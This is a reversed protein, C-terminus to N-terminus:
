VMVAGYERMMIMRTVTTNIAMSCKYILYERRPRADRAHECSRRMALRKPMSVLLIMDKVKMIPAMSAATPPTSIARAMPFSLGKMPKKAPILANVAATSPPIPLIGPAMSPPTSSPRASVNAAAYIEECYLSITANLRSTSMRSNRGVPSRPLGSTSFTYLDAIDLIGKDRSQHGSHDNSRYIPQLDDTAAHRRM